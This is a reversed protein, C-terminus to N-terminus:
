RTTPTGSDFWKEGDWFYMHANEPGIIEVPARGPKVVIESVLNPNLVKIDYLTSFGQSTGGDAFQLMQTPIIPMYTGYILASADPTNVGVYMSDDTIAPTVILKKGSINGAVYPGFGFRNESMMKFGNMMSFFRLAKPGCLVYTGTFKNTQAFLNADAEALTVALTEYHDRMNVGLPATAYFMTKNKNKKGIAIVNEVIENDIEYQLEFEAQKKLDDSLNYNYDKNAQFEALQSYYIAIRRPKAELLVKEVSCNILPIDNQPVLNTEFLGNGNIKMIDSYHESQIM